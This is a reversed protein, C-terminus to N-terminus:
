WRGPVLYRANLVRQPQFHGSSHVVSALIIPGLGRRLAILGLWGHAIYVLGETEDCHYVVTHEEVMADFLRQSRSARQLYEVSYFHEINM